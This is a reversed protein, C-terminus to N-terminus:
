ETPAQTHQTDKNTSKNSILDSYYCFVADDTWDWYVSAKNCFVCQLTRTTSTVLSRMHLDIIDNSLIVYWIHYLWGNQLLFLVVFITSFPKTTHPPLPPLPPQTWQVFKFFPPYAVQSRIKMFYLSAPPPNNHVRQWSFCDLLWDYLVIWYDLCSPICTM